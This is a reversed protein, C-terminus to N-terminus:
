RSANGRANLAAWGADRAAERRELTMARQTRRRLHAEGVRPDLRLRRRHEREREDVNRELRAALREARRWREDVGELALQALMQQVVRLGVFRGDEREREADHEVQEGRDLVVEFDLEFDEERRDVESDDVAARRGLAARGRGRGPARGRAARALAERHERGLHAKEGRAREGRARM